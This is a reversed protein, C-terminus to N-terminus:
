PRRRETVANRQAAAGHGWPVGRAKIGLRRGPLKQCRERSPTRSIIPTETVAASGHWRPHRTPEGIGLSARVRECLTGLERELRKATADHLPRVSAKVPASGPTNAGLAVLDKAREFRLAAIPAEYGLILELAKRDARVEMLTLGQVPLAVPLKPARVLAMAAKEQLARSRAELSPPDRFVVPRHSGKGPARPAEEVARVM